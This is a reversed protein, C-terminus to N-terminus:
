IIQKPDCLYYSFKLQFGIGEPGFNIYKKKWQAM